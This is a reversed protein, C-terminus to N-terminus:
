SSPCPELLLFFLCPRFCKSHAYMILLVRNQGKSGRKSKAGIMRGVKDETGSWIRGQTDWHFHILNWVLVMTSKNVQKKGTPHWWSVVNSKLCSVVSSDANVVGRQVSDCFENSANELSKQRLLDTAWLQTNPCLVPWVSQFQVTRERSGSRKSTDLLGGTYGSLLLGFSFLTDSVPARRGVSRQAGAWRPTRKGSSKLRAPNAASGELRLDGRLLPSAAQRPPRGGPEPVSGWNRVCKKAGRRGRHGSQLPGRRPAAM